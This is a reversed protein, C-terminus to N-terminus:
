NAKNVSKITELRILFELSDMKKKREASELKLEREMKESASESCGIVAVAVLIILKKM